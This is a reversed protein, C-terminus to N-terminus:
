TTHSKRQKEIILKLNFNLITIIMGFTLEFKGGSVIISACGDM